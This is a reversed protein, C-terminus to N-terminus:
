CGIKFKSNQILRKKRSKEVNKTDKHYKSCLITVINTYNRNTPDIKHIIEFVFQLSVKELPAIKKIYM